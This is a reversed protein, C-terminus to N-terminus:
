RRRGATGGGSTRDTITSLWCRAVAPTCRTHVSGRASETARAITRAPSERTRRSAAMAVARPWWPPRTSAWAVAGACAVPAASGGASWRGRRNPAGGPSAESSSERSTACGRGARGSLTTCVGRGCRCRGDGCRRNRRWRRDNRGRNGGHCSRYDAGGVPADRHSTRTFPSPATRM